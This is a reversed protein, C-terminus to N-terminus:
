IYQEVGSPCPPILHETQREISGSSSRAAKALRRDSQRSRPLLSRWTPCSHSQSSPIILQIMSYAMSTIALDRLLEDANSANILDDVINLTPYERGIVPTSEEFKFQDLAGSPKLPVRQTEKESSYDGNTTQSPVDAIIGPAM